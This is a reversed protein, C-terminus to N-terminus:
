GRRSANRGTPDFWRFLTLGTLFGGMHAEWAISGVEGAPPALVGFILNAAIWSVLFIVARRDSALEVLTPRAAAGPRGSSDSLAGGPTFAFRAIAAIMGSISASAGVVPGPDFPHVAYHAAAGGLATVAFFALFRTDGLRRAVPAGFAALTVANVGLHTWNAHLFAYSLPTVWVFRSTEVLQTLDDADYEALARLTATPAVLLSLKAPVFAFYELWLLGTEGSVSHLALHVVVLTAILATLVGPLNLIPERKV